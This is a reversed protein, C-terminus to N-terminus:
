TVYIIFIQLVSLLSFYCHDYCNLIMIMIMMDSNGPATYHVGSGRLLVIKRKAVSVLRVFVEHCVYTKSTHDIEVLKM